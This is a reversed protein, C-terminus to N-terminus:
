RSTLQRIQDTSSCDIEMAFNTEDGLQRAESKVHVSGNQDVSFRAAIRPCITVRLHTLSPLILHCGVPCLHVLKPLNRLNLRQVGPLVIEKCEEVANDGVFIQELKECGAIDLEKLQQLNRAVNVHFLSKLNDCGFVYIELLNSFCAAQQHQEEEEDDQFIIQELKECFSIRLKKLQQLNRAVNVHFFSKLNDCDSISIELLNSFCAAQQHQEEEEDDQFIIQELKECYAIYLKKLQQLDRAVNVHFLSKLNHCFYITIELLNSFCAAQQHQKEEEDDQFIIQELKECRYISLKKLQQLDRAVNVHFLGKLNDCGFITIELLNSFCAAQQHQEEEEDDQVIIQELASCSSISLVKLKSLHRALTTSFIRRLKPCNKVSLISLNQLNIFQSPGKWICELEPLASFRLTELSPFSLFHEGEGGDFEFGEPQFVVQTLCGAIELVKLNKLGHRM